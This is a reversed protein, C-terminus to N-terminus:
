ILGGVPRPERMQLLSDRCIKQLWMDRVASWPRLFTRLKVQKDDEDCPAAVLMSLRFDIVLCVRASIM